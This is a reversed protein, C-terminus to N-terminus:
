EAEVEWVGAGFPGVSVPIGDSEVRDLRWESAEVNGFRPVLKLTKGEVGAFALARKPIRLRPAHTAAGEFNTVVLMAQIGPRYRLYAYVWRGRGGFADLGANASNLGYTSAGARFAPEDSLTLLSRYTGVLAADSEPLRTADFRARAWASLKPPSWYDFITTRGDDGGFGERGAGPEGVEQGAHFLIPGGHGLYLAVAAPIANSASGFGGDGSSPSAARREDHNELYRVTRDRLYDTPQVGDLDNAWRTGRYVDRVLDYVPDDYVADFGSAVLNPLSSDPAADSASYAEAFFFGDPDRERARALLWRWAAAPVYHAFDARFGDVGRAQWFTLIEDFRRWTKPVPDFHSSGDAFNFGWNLKVTEYWDTASPENSLVNNGTARPPRGASGDEGPFRGDMGPASWGDPARLSLARGPPDVLHFFANDPAFFRTTDEGDGFGDRGSEHNRYGRAVHNPVVDIVVKLDAAHLRAVLADFEALRDSPVDAYDPCVDFWDVVAYPSGAIGKVVDPDEKALGISSWDTLSAQRVVGTLWVHTMGLAKISSIAADDISSFKGSGNLELSGNTANTANLNGFTRPLLQYIRLRTPGLDPPRPEPEVPTCTALAAVMGILPWAPRLSDVRTM